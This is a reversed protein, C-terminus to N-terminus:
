DVPVDVDISGLQPNEVYLKVHDSTFGDREPDGDLLCQKIVHDFYLMLRRPTLSKKNGITKIILDVADPQFPYAWDDNVQLKFQSFLDKIFEKAENQTLIDLSISQPAARSKLEPSLLYDVNKQNGCSFSLILQLSTPHENFFTHLSSNNEAAKKPNLEGVRQYEDIMVLLRNCKQPNPDYCAL